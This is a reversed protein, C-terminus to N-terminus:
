LTGVGLFLSQRRGRALSNFLMWFAERTSTILISRATRRCAIMVPTAWPRTDLATLEGQRQMDDGICGAYRLQLYINNKTHMLRALMRSMESRATVAQKAVKSLFLGARPAAGPKKNSQM